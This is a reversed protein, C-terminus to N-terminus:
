SERIGFLLYSRESEVRNRDNRGWNRKKVFKWNWLYFARLELDM